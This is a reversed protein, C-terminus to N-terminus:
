CCDIRKRVFSRWLRRFQKSMAPHLDSILQAKCSVIKETKKPEKAAHCSSWALSPSLCRLSSSRYVECQCAGLIASLDSLSPRELSSLSCCVQLHQQALADNWLGVTAHAGIRCEGKAGCPGTIDPLCRDQCKFCMRGTLLKEVFHENFNEAGFVPAGPM